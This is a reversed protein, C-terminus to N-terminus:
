FLRQLEIQRRIFVQSRKAKFFPVGSNWFFGSTGFIGVSLQEIFSLNVWLCDEYLSLAALNDATKYHITIPM